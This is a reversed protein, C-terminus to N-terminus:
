RRADQQWEGAVIRECLSDAIQMYIPKQRKFDM